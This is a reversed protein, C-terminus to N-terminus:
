TKRLRKAPDYHRKRTAAIQPLVILCHLYIALSQYMGYVWLRPICGAINELCSYTANLTARALSYRMDKFIFLYRAQTGLRYRRRQAAKGPAGEHPRLGGHAHYMHAAPVLLVEYGLWHARNCYDDDSGTFWFLEDFEGIGEWVARPALMAAGIITIQPYTKRLPRGLVADEVLDRCDVVHAYASSDVQGRRHYNLQLPTLLAHPHADSAELLAAIAGPLFEIDDNLLLLHTVGPDDYAARFGRNIVEVVSRNDETRLVRVCPDVAQAVAGTDDTSGNDMVYIQLDVGSNRADCISQCCQGIFDARNYSTVIAALRKM